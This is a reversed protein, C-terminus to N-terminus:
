QQKILHNQELYFSSDEAVTLVDARLLRWNRIEPQRILLRSKWKAEVQAILRDDALQDIWAEWFTCAYRVARNSALGLFRNLFTCGAERGAPADFVRASIGSAARTTSSSM